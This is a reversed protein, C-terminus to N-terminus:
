GLGQLLKFRTGTPDALAALRGYPTDHPEDEVTGGLEVTEAVKADADEVQFYIEWSSPV